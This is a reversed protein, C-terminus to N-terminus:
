CMLVTKLQSEADIVTSIANLKIKAKSHKSVSQKEAKLIVFSNVAFVLHANKINNTKTQTKFEHSPSKHRSEAQCKTEIRTELM